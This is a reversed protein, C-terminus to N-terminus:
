KLWATIIVGLLTMVSVFISIRMNREIQRREAEMKAIRAMREERDAELQTYFREREQERELEFRKKEEERELEYRKKEEEDKKRQEERELEYRRRNEEDQKREQEHRKRDLEIDSFIKAISIAMTIKELEEPSLNTIDDLDLNM